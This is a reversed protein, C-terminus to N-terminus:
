IYLHWIVFVSAFSQSFAFVMEKGLYVIDWGISILLIYSAFCLIGWEMGIRKEYGGGLGGGLNSIGLENVTIKTKKRIRVRAIDNSASL